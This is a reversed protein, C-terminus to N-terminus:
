VLPNALHLAFIVACLWVRWDRLLERPRREAAIRLVFGLAIVFLILLSVQGSWTLNGSGEEGREILLYTLATGALFVWWALSLPFDRRADFWFVIAVVLPFLAALALEPLLWAVPTRRWQVVYELPAFALSASGGYATTLYGGASATGGFHLSYQWALAAASPLGIGLLLYLAQRWRRQWLTRMGLLGLAPLLSLAYSPKALVGLVALAASGLLATALASLSLGDLRRWTMIIIWFLWIAFPRLLTTTPSHYTNPTIAGGTYNPIVASGVFSLQDVMMLMLAGGAWVVHTSFSTQQGNAAQARLLAYIGLGCWVQAALSVYFGAQEMTVDPTLTRMGIVLLHYLRQPPLSNIDASDLAFQAYFTHAQADSSQSIQFRTYSGFILVVLAIVLAPGGALAYALGAIGVGLVVWLGIISLSRYMQQVPLADVTESGDPYRITFTPYDMWLCWEREDAGVTGLGNLYIERIGQTRWRLGVCEGPLLVRDRDARLDIRANHESRVVHLATSATHLSALALGAALTVLLFL